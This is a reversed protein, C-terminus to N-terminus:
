ADLLTRLRNGFENLAVTRAEDDNTAYEVGLPRWGRPVIVTLVVVDSVYVEVTYQEDDSEAWYIEARIVPDPVEITTPM